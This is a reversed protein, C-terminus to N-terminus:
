RPATYHLVAYISDNARAFSPNGGEVSQADVPIMQADVPITVLRKLEHDYSRPFQNREIDGNAGSFMTVRSLNSRRAGDHTLREM